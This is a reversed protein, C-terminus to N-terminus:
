AGWVAVIVSLFGALFWLGFGLLTLSATLMGPRLPHAPVLLLGLWGLSIFTHFAALEWVTGTFAGGMVAAFLEVRVPFDMGSSMMAGVTWLSFGVGLMLGIGLVKFRRVLMAGM